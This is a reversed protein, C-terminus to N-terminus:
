APLLMSQNCFLTTGDACLSWPQGCEVEVVFWGGGKDEKIVGNRGKDTLWNDRLIIKDGIKFTM